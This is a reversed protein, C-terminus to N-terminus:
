ECTACNEFVSDGNAWREAADPVDLAAVLASNLEYLNGDLGSEKLGNRFGSEAGQVVVHGRSEYEYPDLPKQDFISTSSADDASKATPSWGRCRIPRASFACCADKGNMLPCCVDEGVPKRHDASELQRCNAAARDQIRRVEDIPRNQRLYDAIGLVEPPTVAIAAHCYAPCGVQHDPGVQQDIATTAGEHLRNALEAATRNTRRNRLVELTSSQATVAAWNLLERGRVLPPQWNGKVGTRVVARQPERFAVDLFAALLVSVVALLAVSLSVLVITFM